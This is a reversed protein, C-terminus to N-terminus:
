IKKKKAKNVVNKEMDRLRPPFFTKKREEEKQNIYKNSKVKELKKKNTGKENTQIKGKKLFLSM